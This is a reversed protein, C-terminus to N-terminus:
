LPELHVINSYELSENKRATISVRQGIRLQKYSEPAHNKRFILDKHPSDSTKLYLFIVLIEVHSMKSLDDFIIKTITGEVTYLSEDQITNKHDSNYITNKHDSNNNQITKHYLPTIMPIAFLIMLIFYHM